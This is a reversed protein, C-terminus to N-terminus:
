VATKWLSQNINEFSGKVIIMEVKSERSKLFSSAKWTAPIVPFVSKVCRSLKEINIVARFLLSFFGAARGGVRSCMHISSWKSLSSGFAVKLCEMGVSGQQSKCSGVCEAKTVAYVSEWSGSEVHANFQVHIPVLIKFYMGAYLTFPWFLNFFSNRHEQTQGTQCPLVPLVDGLLRSM